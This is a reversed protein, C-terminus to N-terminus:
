GALIEAVEPRIIEPPLPEHAALAQRIRTQSTAIREAAPHCCTKTTAMWGCKRCFFTEEYRLPIVGVDVEDFVRHCAYPDYYKGVGAQDRGVIYLGCGFNKRVIAFWIAAKPGAYRMTITFGALMVRDAPYYHSVLAEYSRLIVEPRFDGSKLRGVVPHILLGDVDSRDLTLRQLYEHATHPPNRCQYAAVNKWGLKDFAARTESPTLEKPGYPTELRRLLDVRGAFAEQGLAFIDAVNPHAPDVTGYTSEAFRKRDLPWREQLHLVAFFRGQGDLLAVDDGAKVDRLKEQAAADTPALVIPMTWPLDNPLRGDATVSDFTAEDMFGELPSYAGTALKETDYVADIFPALQPLEALEDERRAREADGLLRQVLRGGHPLPLM